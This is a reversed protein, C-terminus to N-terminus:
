SVSPRASGNQRRGGLYAKQIEPSLLLEDSSGSLVIRGTELVYARDAVQLAQKANQEVLLITIGEEQLRNIIAFVEQVVLPALGLSPEDMLLLKPKSVMARGIALMQQEGGSLVSASKNKRQALIPFRDLIGDIDRAVVASSAKRNYAGLLLNEYVSMRTLIGRGEPIMVLGRGSLRSPEKGEVRTGEYVIQGTRPSLVGCITKLLTTKGAGNAGILAVVEGQKVDLSVGKLAQIPGYNTRVDSVSLM